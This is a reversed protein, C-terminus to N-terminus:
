GPTQSSEKLSEKIAKQLEPDDSNDPDAMRSSTQSRNRRQTLPRLRPSQEARLSAAIAAQVEPSDEEGPAVGGVTGSSRTTTTTNTARAPQWARAGFDPFLGFMLNRLPGKVYALGVLIGALHGLFSVNPFLLSTVVLEVWCAYRTPVVIFGMISTRASPPMDFTTLIKLAFLVASFGVACDTYYHPQSLADVAILNLAVLTASTLVTFVAILYLFRASGMRPELSRGKWLFSAMNYYLHWEDAHLFAAWILRSWQGKHWVHFASVCAEKISPVRILRFRRLLGLYVSANAAVIGLTVPPIHQVGMQLIQAALLFVGLGASRRRGYGRGYGGGYGGGGRWHRGGRRPFFM